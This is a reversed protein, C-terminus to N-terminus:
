GREHRVPIRKVLDGIKPDAYVGFADVLTGRTGGTTEIAYIIAMDDPDSVGEFRRHGRIVADEANLTQGSRKARLRGDAVYFEETYGQCALEELARTMTM